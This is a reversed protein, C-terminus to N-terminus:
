RLLNILNDCIYLLLSFVVQSSFFLSGPLQSMIFFMKIEFTRRHKVLPNMYVLLTWIFCSPGHLVHPDMYLRLTWWFYSPGGFILPDM